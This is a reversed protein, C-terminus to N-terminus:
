QPWNESKLDPFEPLHSKLDLRQHADPNRTCGEVLPSREFLVKVVCLAAGVTTEFFLHCLPRSRGVARSATLVKRVIATFPFV